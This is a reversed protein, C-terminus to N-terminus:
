NSYGVAIVRRRDFGYTTAADDVFGVLELSRAKLDQVDFVGLALRKFFRPMGGELVKGRPSLINATPHLTRVLPLLDNEDGGTGHLALITLESAGREFRHVFGLEHDSM